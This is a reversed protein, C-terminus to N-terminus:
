RRADAALFELKSERPLEFLLLEVLNRIEALARDSTAGDLDHVHWYQVRDEWGPHRDALLPRHEAEKLAIIQQASQLDNEACQQGPRHESPLKVNLRALAAVTDKSITGVLHGNRETALGRSEARWEIGAAEALHNFWMEAFRSRYYNGTCLFLIKKNQDSM